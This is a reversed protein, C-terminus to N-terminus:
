YLLSFIIGALQRYTLNSSVQWKEAVFSSIRADRQRLGLISLLQRFTTGVEVDHRSTIVPPLPDDLELQKFRRRDRIWASLCGMTGGLAEFM